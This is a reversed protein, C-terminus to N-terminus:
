KKDQEAAQRPRGLPMADILDERGAERLAADRLLASLSTKKKRALSELVERIEESMRVSTLKNRTMGHM